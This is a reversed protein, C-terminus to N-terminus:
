NVPITTMSSYKWGKHETPEAKRDKHLSHETNERQAKRFYLVEGHLWTNVRALVVVCLVVIIIVLPSCAAAWRGGWREDTKGQDTSSKNM